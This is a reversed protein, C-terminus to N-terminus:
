AIFAKLAITNSAGIDIFASGIVITSLCTIVNTSAILAKTLRAECGFIISAGAGVDILTSTFVFTCLTSDATIFVATVAACTSITVITISEGAGINILATKVTIESNVATVVLVTYVAITTIVAQTRSAKFIFINLGIWRSEVLRQTNSITIQCRRVAYITVRDIPAGPVAHLVACGVALITGVTICRTIRNLATNVVQAIWCSTVGCDMTRVTRGIATPDTDAAWGWNIRKWRHFFWKVAYIDILTRPGAIVHSTINICCAGVGHARELTSTVSAKYCGRFVTCANINVFTRSIATVL